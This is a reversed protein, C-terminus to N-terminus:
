SQFAEKLKAVMYEIDEQSLAPHTPLSFITSSALETNPLKLSGYGLEMYLPTKHVPTSYYVMAAIGHANLYNVVKDRLARDGKVRVTYLYWNPEKFGGVNPLALYQELGEEILRKSLYRANEKRKVLFYNLKKLQFLGMAAEVEPMRLNLGLCVSDYGKVQGHTRIKRLQEALEANNTAIAGGEGTTIVKGPYFSFCGLDGISGVRYGKYSSGLAQAADEIIQLSFNDAVKKIEDMDAPFGYLHVPVIAICQRASSAKRELDSIDITYDDLNVDVFIPKLNALLAANATSIFTLSPMLVEARRFNGIALYSAYLASTGSNVAVVEKVKLYDALAKEFERVRAGGPLSPNTLVGSELVQIVAEIDDKGILPKNIPITRGCM